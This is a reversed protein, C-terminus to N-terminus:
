AESSPREDPRRPFFEVAISLLTWVFLTAQLKDPLQEGPGLMPAFMRPLMAILGLTLLGYIVTNRSAAVYLISIVIGAVFTLLVAFGLSDLRESGAMVFGLVAGFFTNMGAQHAAYESETPVLMKPLRLKM